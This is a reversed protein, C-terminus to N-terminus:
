VNCSVGISWHDVEGGGVAPVVQGVAYEAPVGGGWALYLCGKAEHAALLQGPYRNAISEVVDRLREDQDRDWALVVGAHVATGYPPPDPLGLMELTANLTYAVM